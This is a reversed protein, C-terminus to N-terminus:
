LVMMNSNHPCRRFTHEPSNCGICVLRSGQKVVRVCRPKWPTRLESVGHAFTCRPDNCTGQKFHWCLRVKFSLCQYRVHGTNGCRFCIQSTHDSDVYQSIQSMTTTVHVDRGMGRPPDDSSSGTPADPAAGVPGDEACEDCVVPPEEEEEEPSDRPEPDNRLSPDRDKM